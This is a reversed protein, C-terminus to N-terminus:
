SPNEFKYIVLGSLVKPYFYTSKPPLKKGSKALRLIEKLHISSNVLLGKSKVPCFYALIYNFARNVKAPTKLTELMKHRYALAVEYRHHGDAIFFDKKNMLNVVQKILSPSSVRWLYNEIKQRDTVISVPNSSAIIRKFIKGLCNGPDSFLVFIPELNAKLREQLRFRDEVPEIRTHEHGFIAKNRLNLNAIFGLRNYEKKAIIFRQEYFYIVPIEEQILIKNKLWDRFRKAAKSYVHNDKKQSRPITLHVINYPSLHSYYALEEKSIIDYPPSVVQSLDAIKDQNYRIARLPAIAPM